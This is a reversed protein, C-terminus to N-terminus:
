KYPMWDLWICVSPFVVVLLEQQSHIPLAQCGLMLCFISKLGLLWYRAKAFASQCKLPFNAHLTCMQHVFYLPSPRKQSSKTCGRNETFLLALATNIQAAPPSSWSKKCMCLYCRFPGSKQHLQDLCIFNRLYLQSKTINWFSTKIFKYLRTM